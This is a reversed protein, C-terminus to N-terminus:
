HPVDISQAPIVYLQSIKGQNRLTMLVRVARPLKAGGAQEAADPWLRHFKAKDDLYEFSFNIVDHLLIRTDPLSKATQDLVPWSERLLVEDEVRYRTRQLTSRLEGLPNAFGAHTFAVTTESGMFSNELTNTANTIPRDIVQEFDRSMIILALQLEAFRAMNKELNTQSTFVSHLAAVMITSLITFIFLAILLEILTFGSATHNLNKHLRM